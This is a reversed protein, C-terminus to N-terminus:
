RNQALKFNFFRKKEHVSARQVLKTMPAAM